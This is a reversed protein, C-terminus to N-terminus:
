NKCNNRWKKCPEKHRFSKSKGAPMVPNISGQLEKYYPCEECCTIDKDIILEYHVHITEKPEEKSPQMDSYPYYPEYEYDNKKHKM